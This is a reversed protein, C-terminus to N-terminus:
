GLVDLDELQRGWKMVDALDADGVGDQQLGSLERGFLEGRHFRVRRYTGRDQGAAAGFHEPHTFLDREVM